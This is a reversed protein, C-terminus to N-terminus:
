STLCDRQYYTWGAADRYYGGDNGDESSLNCMYGDTEFSKCTISQAHICAERCGDASLDFLTEDDLFNLKKDVEFQVTEAYTVCEEVCEQRDYAYSLTSGCACVGARCVSGPTTCESDQVCQANINSSSKECTPALTWLGNVCRSFNNGSLEFNPFCEYEVYSGSLFYEQGLIVTEDTTSLTAVQSRIIANTMTANGVREPEGCNQECVAIQSWVGGMLCEITESGVLVYNTNCRVIRLDGIKNLNGIVEGDGVDPELQCEEPICVYSGGNEVCKSSGACQATACMGSTSLIVDTQVRVVIYVSGLCTDLGTEAENSNNHARNNLQCRGTRRAYNVSTCASRAVCEKICYRLNGFSTTVLYGNLCKGFHYGSTQAGASLILLFWLISLKNSRCVAVAM